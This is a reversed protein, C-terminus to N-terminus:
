VTLGKFRADFYSQPGTPFKRKFLDPRTAVATVTYNDATINTLVLRIPTSQPDESGDIYPRYTAIIPEDILASARELEQIPLRSVNDLTIKIDQQNSGVDPLIIDFGYPVFEVTSPDGTALNFFHSVDDKVVRFPASFLSHTLELTDYSRTAIPNSSYVAKLEESLAM